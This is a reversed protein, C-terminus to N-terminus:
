GNLGEFFKDLFEIESLIKYSEIGNIEIYSKYTNNTTNVGRYRGLTYISNSQTEFEYTNNIINKYAKVINSSFRWSDYGNNCDLHYTKINDKTLEFVSFTRFSYHLNDTHM